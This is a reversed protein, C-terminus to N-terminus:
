NSIPQHILVSLLEGSDYFESVTSISWSTGGQVAHRLEWDSGATAKRWYFVHPNDSEDIGIQANYASFFTEDTAEIVAHSDLDAHSLPLTHTTGDITDITDDAVRYILHMPNAYQVVGSGEYRGNFTLHIDGNSDIDFSVPYIWCDEAFDDADIIITKSGWGSDYKWVSFDKYTTSSPNEDTRSFFYKEGGAYVVQPYTSGDGIGFNTQETWSTYDYSTGSIAWRIGGGPANQGNHTGWFVNLRTAAEDVALVPVGHNNATLSNTSIRVTSCMVGAAHDYCGVYPKLDKGQFVFFTRDVSAVYYAYGQTNTSTPNAM